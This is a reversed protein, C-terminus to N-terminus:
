SEWPLFEIHSFDRALGKYHVNARFKEGRLAREYWKRDSEYMKEFPLADTDYWGSRLTEATEQPNGSFNKALYISCQNHPKGEAHFTIVAVKELGTPNLTLTTEELTERVVCEEDTEEPECKGGPGSLFGVGIEGIKKEGLLTQTKGGSERVIIALTTKKM